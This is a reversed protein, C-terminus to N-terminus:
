LIRYRNRTGTESITSRHKKKLYIERQGLIAIVADVYFKKVGFRVDVLLYETYLLDRPAVESQESNKERM